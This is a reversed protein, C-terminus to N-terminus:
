CSASPRTLYFVFGLIFLSYVGNALARVVAVGLIGYDLRIAVYGGVWVLVIAGVAGIQAPLNRRLVPIIVSPGSYALFLTGLLVIKAAPLGEVYKPLFGEVLIPLLFWGVIVIPIMVGLNVLLGIWIYRRLASSSGNAGFAYAVRPYLLQNISAPFMQMAAMVMTSLAFLGLDEATLFAAIVSRDAVALWTFLVGSILMPFGVIALERADAFKANSTHRVPPSRRLLLWSPLFQTALKLGLGAVGIVSTSMAWLFSWGNQIHSTKGLREFNQTGRYITEWHLNIPSLLMAPILALSIYIYLPNEARLVFFLVAGLGVLCGAVAVWRATWASASVFGEVKEPENKARYLPLNRNLGNFVGLQLFGAYVPILLVGQVVGLEQPEVFRAAVISGIMGLLPSLWKASLLWLDGRRANFQKTLSEWKLNRFIRSSLTM